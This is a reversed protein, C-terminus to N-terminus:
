LRAHKHCLRSHKVHAAASLLEGRRFEVQEHVDALKSEANYRKQHYSIRVRIVYVRLAGKIRGKQQVAEVLRM